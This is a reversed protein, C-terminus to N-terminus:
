CICTDYLLYSYIGNVYFQNEFATQLAMFTRLVNILAHQETNLCTYLFM